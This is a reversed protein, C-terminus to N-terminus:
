NGLLLQSNEAFNEHITKNNKTVAYPLFVTEMTVMNITVLALQADIWHYILRWATRLAQDQNCKHRPVKRDREMAKLVPRWDTPLRFNIHHEGVKMLFSMSEVEGSDNYNTIMSQVGFDKLKMQIESITKEPEITTSYDKLPM